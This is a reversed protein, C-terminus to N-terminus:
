VVYSRYRRPSLSLPPHTPVDFVLTSFVGFIGVSVHMCYHHTVLARRVQSGSLAAGQVGAKPIAANLEDLPKGLLIMAQKHTEYKEKVTHDAQVATDLIARFKSVQPTHTHTHTHTHM